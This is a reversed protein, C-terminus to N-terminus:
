SIGEKYALNYVNYVVRVVYFVLVGSTHGQDEIVLLPYPEGDAKQVDDPQIPKSFANDLSLILRDYYQEGFAAILKDKNRLAYRNLKM